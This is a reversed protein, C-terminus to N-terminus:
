ISFCFQNKQDNKKRSLQRANEFGGCFFIKIVKKYQKLHKEKREYIISQFRLNLFKSFQAKRTRTACFRLVASANFDRGALVDNVDCWRIMWTM